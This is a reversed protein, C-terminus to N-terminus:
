RKREGKGWDWGVLVLLIERGEGHAKRVGMEIGVTWGGKAREDWRRHSATGLSMTGMLASRRPPPTESQCYDCLLNIVSAAWSLQAWSLVRSEGSVLVSWKVWHPAAPQSPCPHLMLCPHPHWHTKPSPLCLPTPSPATVPSLYPFPILFSPQLQFQHQLPHLPHLTKSKHIQASLRKKKKLFISM